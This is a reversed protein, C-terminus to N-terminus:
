CPSTGLLANALLDWGGIVPSGLSGDARQPRYSEFFRNFSLTVRETPRDSSPTGDTAVGTVRVDTMCYTLYEQREASVHRVTFRASPITRGSAATTFLQPSARDVRKTFAFDAFNPRASSRATVGWSYSLVDIEDAHRADVSEGPIGDLKLFYDDAAPAAAPLLLALACASMLMSGVFRPKTM